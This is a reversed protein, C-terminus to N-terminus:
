IVNVNITAFWNQKEWFVEYSCNTKIKINELMNTFTEKNHIFYFRELINEWKVLNGGLEFNRYDNKNKESTNYKEYSWVSILLSGSKNLCNIMNIIAISQFEITELHHLVAICLIKDFYGFQTNLEMIDIKYSEIGKKSSIDVLKQSIDIGICKYGLTNAFLANKSNGCGVDLLNENQTKNLFQKVKNWIRIRSIDFRNAITDYQLEINKNHITYAM